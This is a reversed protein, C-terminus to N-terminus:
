KGTNDPPRKNLNYIWIEDTRKGLGGVYLYHEHCCTDIGRSIHEVGIKGLEAMKMEEKHITVKWVADSAPQFRINRRVVMGTTVYVTKCPAGKQEPMGQSCDCADEPTAKNLVTRLQVMAAHQEKVLPNNCVESLYRSQMDCLPLTTLISSLQQARDTRDHMIWRLAAELREDPNQVRLEQHHLYKAVYELPLQKFQMDDQVTQFNELAVQLYENAKDTLNARQADSWLTLCHETTVTSDKLLELHCQKSLCDAGLFDAASKLHQLSKRPVCVEGKYVFILFLNVVDPTLDLTVCTQQAQPSDEHFYTTHAALLMRHVQFTQDGACLTLDTLAKSTWLRKLAEQLQVGLTEQSEICVSVVGESPDPSTEVSLFM